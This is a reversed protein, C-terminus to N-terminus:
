LSIGKKLLFILKFDIKIKVKTAYRSNVEEIYINKSKM